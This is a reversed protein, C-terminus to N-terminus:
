YPSINNGDSFIDDALIDGSATLVDQCAFRMVSVQPVVYNKKYVNM